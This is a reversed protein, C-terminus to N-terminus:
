EPIEQKTVLQKFLDVNLLDRFKNRYKYQVGQNSIQEKLTKNFLKWKLYLGIEYQNLLELAVLETDTFNM